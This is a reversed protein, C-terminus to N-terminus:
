TVVHVPISRRFGNLSNQNTKTQNPSLPEQPYDRPAAEVTAKRNNNNQSLVDLGASLASGNNQVANPITAETPQLCAPGLVAEQNYRIRDEAVSM